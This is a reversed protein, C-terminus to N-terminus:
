YIASPTIIADLPVDWTQAKLQKIQQCDFALGILTPKNSTQPNKKFALTRDYYGGGMGLRNKNKDFGVLPMLIVDLQKASIIDTSIPELIGYKNHSFNKGIKAFKLNKDVLVPLYTGIAQKKLLKQLYITDIEGDNPLYIAIKQQPQFNVIKQIQPLLAQASKTRDVANINRRQQRLSQRLADM